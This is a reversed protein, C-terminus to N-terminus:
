KSREVVALLRKVVHEQMERTLEPYIPLALTEKAAKESEPFDGEKYGFEKFCEQMHLPAPYYVACGIGESQLHECVKDRDPVRVVYQNYIHHNVIGKEAYVACPTQVSTDKFAENYFDANKRRAAHWSELHKLKIDLVAAQLADLRFNGGVMGHFYKHQAGHNRLMKMKDALDANHTTVMGGDGFGGLNKSPFFSFCGIDGMSGTKCNGSKSPYETGIAQAADEIVKLNYEKAVDLLSDMDATQGFLHVPMLVRSKFDKFREPMSELTQRLRAPDINYTVPDIDVFVPVAGLRVISGVTAFFTYPTTIVADGPGINLAMLAVLLADTGSSVGVAHAVGCYEAINREFAEVKPGLIFYQEDCVEDMVARVEERIVAYQTKLDLLPVKM